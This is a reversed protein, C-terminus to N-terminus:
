MATTQAPEGWVTNFCFTHGVCTKQKTRTHPNKNTKHKKKKKMINNAQTNQVRVCVEVWFVDM